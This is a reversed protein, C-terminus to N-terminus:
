GVIEYFRLDSEWFVIEGRHNRIHWMGECHGKSTVVWTGHSPNAPEILKTGIKIQSIAEM